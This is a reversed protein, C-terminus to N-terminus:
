GTRMIYIGLYVPPATISDGVTTTNKTASIGSQGNGDKNGRWYRTAGTSSDKNGNPYGTTDGPEKVTVKHSHQQTRSSVMGGLSNGFVGGVGAPMYNKLDPLYSMGTMAKVSESAKQGECKTWGQPIKAETGGWFIITGIPVGANAAVAEDVYKKDTLHYQTSPRGSKSTYGARLSDVWFVQDGNNNYIDLVNATDSAEPSSVVKLSTSGVTPEINLGGTMTDGSKRVYNELDVEDAVKFIRVNIPNGDDEGNSQLNDIYIETAISRTTVKTIKGILYDDDKSDFVDILEGVEVAAWTHTTQKNDVNNFSIVHAKGYEHTKIWTEVDPLAELAATADRNCQSIKTSDGNANAICQAQTEAIAQEDADRKEQTYEYAMYYKGAAPQTISNPNDDFVWEGKEVAPAISEIEQQLINIEGQLTNEVEELQSLTTAEDQEEAETLKVKGIFEADGDKNLIFKEQDDFRFHVNDISQFFEFDARTGNEDLEIQLQADPYNLKDIHTLRLRPNKKETDSAIDITAEDPALAVLADEADTLLIGKDAVNGETLVEELNQIGGTAAAPLWNGDWNVFLELRDTDFWFVCNNDPANEGFHIISEIPPAVAVWEDNYRIYLTSVGDTTDFWLKGEYIGDTPEDGTTPVPLEVELHELASVIFGNINSQYGMDSSPPIIGNPSGPYNVVTRPSGNVPSESLRGTGTAIVTNTFVPGSGDGSGAGGGGTAAGTNRGNEIINEPGPLMEKAKGWVGGSKPGYIRWNINDIAYDGDRGMDNRPTGAVTHITNGDLGPDGTAGMPGPDGKLGQPGQVFGCNIISGDDLGIILSGEIIAASAVSAM